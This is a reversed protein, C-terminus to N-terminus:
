WALGGLLGWLGGSLALLFSLKWVLWPFPASSVFIDTFEASSCISNSSDHPRSVVNDSNLQETMDLEKPGYPSYGAM